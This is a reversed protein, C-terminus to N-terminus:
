HYFRQQQDPPERYDRTVMTLGLFVRTSYGDVRRESPRVKPRLRKLAASFQVDGPIPRGGDQCAKTYGARLQKKVVFGDPNDVTNQDLWIALPDTTCRFEEFAARTSDTETFKGARIVPLAALAKNLMGSLESAQSLRADLEARAITKPDLEDFLNPFPIVLWRRFFGPSSDESRPAANASFVLRVFPLFEFSMAFKREASIMDGGVIGKFVSTGALASTPLDSGINCLKGVLRAACFKDAEIRHLTLASCNGRGLFAFLLTLFVSKGNAGEGVLLAAKQISTDPTMLWAALEWALHASDHPFAAAVFKDIEPCTAAPDFTVPLQVPSLYKPDHPRLEKAKVELLGNRVNITDLPPREWLEPAYGSVRAEVRSALEPTWIKSAGWDDCMELCKREICRKGTPKYVGDEFVYLLGGADTAFSADGTIADALKRTIGLDGSKDADGTEKKYVTRLAAQADGLTYKSKSRDPAAGNAANVWERLTLSAEDRDYGATRLEGFLGLGAVNFSDGARVREVAKLLLQEVPIRDRTEGVVGDAPYKEMSGAIRALHEHDYPPRCRNVNIAVLAALIEEENLGRHRMSGAVSVLHKHRGQGEFIAEPIPESKRHREEIHVGPVWTGSAEVLADLAARTGGAYRWDTVDGKTGVPLNVLKLSAAVPL